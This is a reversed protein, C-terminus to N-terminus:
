EELREVFGQLDMIFLFEEGTVSDVVGFVPYYICSITESSLTMQRKVRSIYHLSPATMSAPIDHESNIGNMSYRVKRAILDVEASMSGEGITLYFQSVSVGPGKDRIAKALGIRNGTIETDDSFKVRWKIFFDKM